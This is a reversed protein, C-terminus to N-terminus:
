CRSQAGGSGCAFGAGKASAFRHSACGVPRDRGLEDVRKDDARLKEAMELDRSILVNAAVEIQQEVLGGMAVILDEIQRLDKDYATSIHNEIAM